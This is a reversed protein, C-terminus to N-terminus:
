ILHRVKMCTMRSDSLEKLGLIANLLEQFDFHSASMVFRLQRRLWLNPKSIILINQAAEQLWIWWLFECSHFRAALHVPLGWKHYDCGLPKTEGSSVRSYWILGTTKYALLSVISMRTFSTWSLFPTYNKYRCLSSPSQSSFAAYMVRSCFLINSLNSTYKRYTSGLANPTSACHVLAWDSSVMRM